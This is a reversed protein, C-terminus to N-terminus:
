TLALIHFLVDNITHVVSHLIRVVDYLGREDRLVIWRSSRMCAYRVGVDFSVKTFVSGSARLVRWDETSRWLMAELVVVFADMQM